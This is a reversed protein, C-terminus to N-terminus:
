LGVSGAALADGPALGFLTGVVLEYRAGTM